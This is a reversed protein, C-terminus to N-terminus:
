ETIRSVPSQSSTHTISANYSKAQSPKEGEQTLLYIVAKKRYM